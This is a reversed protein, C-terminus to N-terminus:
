HTVALHRRRNALEAAVQDVRSTLDKRSGDNDIVLDDAERMVGAESVHDDHPLDPRRVHILTGRERVFAAENEFRVDTITVALGPQERAVAALRIRMSTVWFDRDIQERIAETGLRQLFWRISFGWEPMVAERDGVWMERAPRQLLGAAALKLPDAFAARSYGHRMLASAVTDKGARARGTIGVVWCGKM